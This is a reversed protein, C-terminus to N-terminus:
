VTVEFATYAHDLHYGLKECLSVSRLNQADWSPYLGKDLCALILRAGCIYALGRRRYDARTDIQIEIGGQYSSYSSAGSILVGDKLIVAGLGLRQYTCYDKYNAVLDRSWPNELCVDYLAENIMCLRFGGNLSNVAATLTARDFVDKEKKTAYRVTEKAQPGCCDKILEAWKDNQPTMIQFAKGADLRHLILAAKPAGAFFCFDGLVAMASGSIQEDDAYIEGMTGDLCSLIMTENWGSFLHAANQPNNLRYIM